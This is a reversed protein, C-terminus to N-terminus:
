GMAIPLPLEWWYIDPRPLVPTLWLRKVDRQALAILNGVVITIAALVALLLGWNFVANPDVALMFVWLLAAFGAAKSAVSLYTTIPIPAGQYIDLTWMHFPVVSIKFAFGAIVMLVGAIVAASSGFSAGIEIFNTSGMSAYLLSIGFLLIASSTAGLILYKLGAEGSLKDSKLYATLIYFSITMLELGVYLTIFEGAAVMLMMGLTAFIMLGYFENSKEKFGDIYRAGMLIVLLGAMLFLLKFYNGYADVQYVGNFLGAERSFNLILYLLVLAMGGLALANVFKRGKGPLVLGLILVALGLLALLIETTLISFDM